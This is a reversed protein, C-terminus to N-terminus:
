GEGLGTRPGDWDGIKAINVELLEQGEACRCM